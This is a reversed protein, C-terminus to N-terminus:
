KKPRFKRRFFELGLLSMGLFALTSSPDPVGIPRDPRDKERGFFSIHSIDRVHPDLLLITQFGSIQQPGVAEYLTDGQGGKLLVGALDFETGSLDWLLGAHPNGPGGATLQIENGILGFPDEGQIRGLFILPAGLREEAWATQTPPSSDAPGAEFGPLVPVLTAKVAMASALLLGVMLKKMMDDRKGLMKTKHQAAGV